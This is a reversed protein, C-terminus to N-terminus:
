LQYQLTTYIIRGSITNIQAPNSFDFLNDIGFGLGLRKGIKKNIAWNFLTYGDVFDDYVDLFKNSNTDYLGYKSRYTIRLNTNLKWNPISYFVKFNFLHKSRNYLGVYDSPKLKFTEKTEPNRAYIEGNEFRKSAEQDKAYLLQYGTSIKLQNSPKFTANFELGETIVKNVNYYSFVNQQNNTKPAIVRTDILDRINNRFINLDFFLTTTPSYRGGINISISNEPKLANDFESLPVKLAQILGLAQMEPIKTPVANYGLVTYGVSSNTFDFYLQRFDPTKFGYGVAGKISLQSTIKYHAAIKPSCQSTYKTHYDFRAGLILNLRKTLNGDWQTYLYPANFVPNISFDTRKLSAYNTGIGLIFTNKKGPTYILRYEPKLLLEDYYSKSNSSGDTNNLQEDAQYNTAYCELYTKWTSNYTHSLKLQTNWENIEATGSITKSINHEQDEKYYRGTLLLSTKETFRYNIKTSFTYNSFPDITQHGDGPTLDYGDTSYRNAFTAISFKNKKYGINLSADQKNHTSYSYDLTTNFGEKPSDTIINVVGGLAESGYLSSSAGKVIEIQKINGVTIRSLDLTGATRGILPLGDILILTYESSLGQLQIGEGGGFTPVTILGTQENLLHHLRKTNSQKLEKKGILLVPLPLSSLQRKTRTATVIVEELATTTISDTTTRFHKKSTQQATLNGIGLFLVLIYINKM